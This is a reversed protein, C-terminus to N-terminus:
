RRQTLNGRDQRATSKLRYPHGSLQASSLPRFCVTNRGDTKKRTGIMDYRNPNTLLPPYFFTSRNKQKSIQVAIRYWAASCISSTQWHVFPIPREGSRRAQAAYWVWVWVLALTQPLALGLWFTKTICLRIQCTKGKRGIKFTSLSTSIGGCKSFAATADTRVM